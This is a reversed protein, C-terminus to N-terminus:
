CQLLSKLNEFNVKIWALSYYFGNGSNEKNLYYAERYLPLAMSTRNTAEYMRGIEFLAISKNYGCSISNRMCCIAEEAQAENGASISYINNSLKFQAVKSTDLQVSKHCDM